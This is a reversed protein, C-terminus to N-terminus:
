KSKKEKKKKPSSTLSAESSKTKQKKGKEKHGGGYNSVSERLKEAEEELEKQRKQYAELGGQSGFSNWRRKLGQVQDIHEYAVRM